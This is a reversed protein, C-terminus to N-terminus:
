INITNAGIGEMKKYIKNTNGHKYMGILVVNNDRNIYWLPKGNDPYRGEIHYVQFGDHTVGSLPGQTPNARVSGLQGNLITVTDAGIVETEQVKEEKEVNAHVVKEDGQKEEKQKLAIGAKTVLAEEDINEDSRIVIKGGANFAKKVVVFNGELIKKLVTISMANILYDLDYEGDIILRFYDEEDNLTVEVARQIISSGNLQIPSNTAMEQLKKQAIVEPRNDVFGFGQKGNSKKQTVPLSAALHHLESLKANQPSNKALDRLRRMQIAEPRNDVFRSTPANSSQRQSVTNAELQSKKETTKEVPEYM